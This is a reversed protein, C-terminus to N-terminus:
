KKLWYYLGIFIAMSIAIFTCDERIWRATAGSKLRNYTEVDSLGQLKYRILDNIQADIGLNYTRNSGAIIVWPIVWFGVTPICLLLHLLHNTRKKQNVLVFLQENM